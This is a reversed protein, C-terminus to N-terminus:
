AFLKAICADMEEDSRVTFDPQVQGAAPEPGRRRVWIVSWGVGVTEAHEAALDMFLDFLGSLRLEGRFDTKSTSLIDDRELYNRM